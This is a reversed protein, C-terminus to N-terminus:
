GWSVAQRARVFVGGLSVGAISAVVQGLHPERGPSLFQVLELGIALTVLGLLLGASLRWAFAGAATLGAFALTHALPESADKWGQLAGFNFEPYLALVSAVGALGLFATRAAARSRQLIPRDHGPRAEQRYLAAPASGAYGQAATEALVERWSAVLRAPALEAEGAERARAGMEALRDPRALLAAVKSTWTEPRDPDLVEGIDHRLITRAIAGDRDGLFLLPRGAAMVGSLKSPMILDECAPALTVLHLDPVSLSRSLESRAQYPRFLVNTAGTETIVDQIHSQGSGGGIFLWSLRPLDITRRVLEAVREGMHARGLNGSYGIVFRDALGWEVRLPNAALPVPRIERASWNPIVRIREPLVGRRALREKMGGSVVVNLTAARLSADRLRALMRGFGSGASAFGLAEAVEPFLDHNWSVLRAGKLRALLAAPVSFLPPDTGVLVVDGRKAEALLALTASVHFSLYALLRGLLSGSGVGSSWVRQVAVGDVTERPALRGYPRDYRHRGCIVTVLWGRACLDGALDGLLQGTPAMDPWFFRNVAILRPSAPRKGPSSM